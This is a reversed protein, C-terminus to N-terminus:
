AADGGDRPSSVVRVRPPMRVVNGSPLEPVAPVEQRKGIAALLHEAIRLEGENDRALERITRLNVLLTCVETAGFVLGTQEYPRLQRCIDDIMLSPIPYATM